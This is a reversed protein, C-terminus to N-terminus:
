HTIPLHIRFTSGVGVESEVNVHGKHALAIHKVIALGLGTGGLKRSRDDEVRYFREFIRPLHEEPIGCGEDKVSIIIERDHEDVAIVVESSPESYKIANTVLNVVAQEVHDADIMATHKGSAVLKLTIDKSEAEARCSQIATEVVPIADRMALQFEDFETKREIRSLSLLDHVIANLRDIHRNIIQLFHLSSKEDKIAGDLLTEVFGKITTIPTRLEHSVNAVFERRMNELRKINTIDNLVVMVGFENGNADRIVTGRAQLFREGESLVIEKEVYSKKQLIQAIFNQLEPIRTVEHLAKGIAKQQSIGLFEAAAQNLNILRENMDLAILGESMSSLLAELENRQNTITTIRSNLQAAMHNLAEALSRLEESDPVPVRLNLNGDAFQKAGKQMEVIPSTIRRSVVYSILAALVAVILAAFAIWTYVSRLARDIATVPISVRVVGIIEGNPSLPIAFYMMREKLTPSYRVSVGSGELMADVFEPRDAHNEMLLPDHDSDGLVRGNSSILTIRTNSETGLAVCLSDLYSIHLSDLSSMTKQKVLHARAQLDETTQQYYFRRVKGTALWSVAILAGLTIALYTPFLQRFLRKRKL